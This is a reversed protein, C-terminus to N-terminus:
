AALVPGQPNQKSPTNPGFPSLQPKNSRTSGSNNSVEQIEASTKMALRDAEEDFPMAISLVEERIRNANQVQVLNYIERIAKITAGFLEEFERKFNQSEDKVIQEAQRAAAEPNQGALELSQGALELLTKDGTGLKRELLGYGRQADPNQRNIPIRQKGINGQGNQHPMMGTGLM